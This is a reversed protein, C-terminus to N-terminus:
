SRWGAEDRSYTVIGRHAVEVGYRSQGDPVDRVRFTFVCQGPEIQGTALQGQAIVDGEPNTVAVRAGGAIDEYGGHGQCPAGMKGTQDFLGPL